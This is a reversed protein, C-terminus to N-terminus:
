VMRYKKRLVWEAFLAALVGGWILPAHWIEQRDELVRAVKRIKFAAPVQDAQSMDFVAGGSAQAMAQLTGTDVIPRDFELNPLEVPVELTAAKVVLRADEAGPWVRIFHKGPKTVTFNTEYVGAEGARPTLTLPIPQADAVEVEGHLAEISTDKDAADFRATLTVQSGPKYTARDTSLTYPYRGGLQKSRGARDIMRAWFGDFYQEDLYRWRYTSDFAVFFTRGPGVLQTALLVHQGHENRMRPDAHRALVTAGQKARTVPFHWYMGPLNELIKENNQPNPDFQFIPDSMGEPTIELKWPERASLRM